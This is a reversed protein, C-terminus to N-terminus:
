RWSQGESVKNLKINESFFKRLDKEIINIIGGGWM